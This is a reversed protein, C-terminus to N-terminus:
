ARKGSGKGGRLMEGLAGVITSVATELDARITLGAANRHGGGGFTEALSAVNHDNRSRLSVRVERDGLERFLAALEVDDISAAYDVFGETDSMAAGAAALM